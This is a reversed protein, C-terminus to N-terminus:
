LFIELKILLEIEFETKVWEEITSIMCSIWDDNKLAWVYNNGERYVLM